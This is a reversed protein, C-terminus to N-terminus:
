PKIAAFKKGAEKAIAAFAENRSEELAPRLFPRAPANKTGFEVLHAYKAPVIHKGNITADYKPKVRVMGIITKKKFGVGMSKSLSGTKQPVKKRANKLVVRLGKRIAPKLVKNGMTKQDVLNALNMQIKKAGVVRIWQKNDIAGAMM